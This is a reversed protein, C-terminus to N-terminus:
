FACSICGRHHTFPMEAKAIAIKVPIATDARPWEVYSEVVTEKQGRGTVAHRRHIDFITGNDVKIGGVRDLDTVLAFDPHARGTVFVRIQQSVASVWM